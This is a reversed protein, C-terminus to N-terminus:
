SFRKKLEEKLKQEEARKQEWAETDEKIQQRQRASENLDNNLTTGDQALKFCNGGSWVFLKSPDNM